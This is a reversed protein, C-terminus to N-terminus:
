PSVSHGIMMWGKKHEQWISMMHLPSPLPHGNSSGNLTITYTVIFTQGTMETKLDGISFDTIKWQRYQELAASRDAPGSASIGSYNSAIVREIETWNASQIEKWFMRELGEGGTVEDFTRAPREKAITCACGLM